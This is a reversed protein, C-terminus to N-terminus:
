PKTVVDGPKHAALQALHRGQRRPAFFWNAGTGGTLVNASDDDIVTDPNLYAPDNVGDGSLLHTLRTLFDEDTRAFESM